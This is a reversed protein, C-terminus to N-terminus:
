DHRDLLADIQAMLDASLPGHALAATNEEVQAV